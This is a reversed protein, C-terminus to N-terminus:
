RILHLKQRRVGLLLLGVGITIAVDAVNFVPWYHIHIFDVVYGRVVRDFLNGLAGGLLVAQAAREVGGSKPWRSVIWGLLALNAATQLLLVIWFRSAPGLLRGFVSFASDTNKVYELDFVGSVL